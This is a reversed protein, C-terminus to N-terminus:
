EIKDMMSWIGKEGPLPEQCADTHKWWRINVPDTENMEGDKKADTGVYEVYFFEYITEGIEVLFVSFHRNNGRAMQDVVGPWVSQHLIRYEKEKEPKITTVMSYANAADAESLSGRIYCIWEMQLWTTDYRKARPHPAILKNLAKVADGASEFDKAAQLYDEGEYDFYVMVWTKGSLEKRYCSLNSIGANELAAVAKKASLGKLAANVAAEEGPKASAILAARKVKASLVHNEYPSFAMVASAALLLMLLALLKRPTMEIETIM